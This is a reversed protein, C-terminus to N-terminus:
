EPPLPVELNSEQPIRDEKKPPVPPPNELEQQTNKEQEM